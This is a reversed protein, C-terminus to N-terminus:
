MRGRYAGVLTGVGYSVHIGFFVFPLAVMTWNREPSQIAARITLIVTAAASCLRAFLLAAAM